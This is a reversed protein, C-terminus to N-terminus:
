VVVTLPYIAALYSINTGTGGNYLWATSIYRNVAGSLTIYQGGIATV